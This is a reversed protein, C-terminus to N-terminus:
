AQARRSSRGPARAKAPKDRDGLGLTAMVIQGLAVFDVKRPSTHRWALGITRGPQPPAFRLLKVREDRVEVDIAVEPVLTVGYGNAVMQMV